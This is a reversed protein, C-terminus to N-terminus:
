FYPGNPQYKKQSKDGLKTLISRSEFAPFHKGQLLVVSIATARMSCTASNQNRHTCLKRKLLSCNRPM